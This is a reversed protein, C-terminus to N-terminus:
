VNTNMAGPLTGREGPANKSNVANGIEKLFDTVFVINLLMYRFNDNLAEEHMNITANIAFDKLNNITQNIGDNAACFKKAIELLQIEM